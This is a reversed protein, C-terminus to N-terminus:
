VVPQVKWCTCDDNSPFMHVCQNFWIWCKRPMVKGYLESLQASSPGGDAGGDDSAAPDLLAMHQLINKEKLLGLLAPADAQKLLYVLYHPTCASCSLEVEQESHSGAPAAIGNQGNISSGRPMIIGSGLRALKYLHCWFQYWM